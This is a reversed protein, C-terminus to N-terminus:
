KKPKSVPKRQKKEPEVKKTETKEVPEPPKETEQKKKTLETTRLIEEPIPIKQRYIVRWTYGDPTLTKMLYVLWLFGTNDQDDIYDSSIKQFGFEIDEDPCQYSAVLVRRFSEIEDGRIPRTSTPGLPKEQWQRYNSPKENCEGNAGKDSFM